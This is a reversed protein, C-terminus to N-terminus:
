ISIYIHTHAHTYLIIYFIICFYFRGDEEMVDWLHRKEVALYITVM